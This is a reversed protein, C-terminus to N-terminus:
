KRIKVQELNEFIKSMKLSYMKKKGSMKGQEEEIEKNQERSKQSKANIRVNKTKRNM